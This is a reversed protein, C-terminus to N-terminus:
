APLTPVPKSRASARRGRRAAARRELAVRAREGLRDLRAHGARVPGLRPEDRLDAKWSHVLAPRRRWGRKRPSRSSLAGSSTTRSRRGLAGLAARVRPDGDARGAPEVGQRAAAARAAQRAALRILAAHRAEIQAISAFAAVFDESEFQPAAGNYASVGTDELTNALKLFAAESRWRPASTSGRGTTRSAAPTTSRRRAARRRARGGPRAPARRAAADDASLDPVAKLADRYLAPSRRVRDDARVPADDLDDRIDGFARPAAALARRRRARPVVRPHRTLRTMRGGHLAAAAASRAGHEDARRVRRRAARGRAPRHRALVRARRAPQGGRGPPGRRHPHALM